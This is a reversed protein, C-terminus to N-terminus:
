EACTSRGDGDACFLGLETLAADGVTLRCVEKRPVPIAVAFFAVTEGGTDAGVVGPTPVENDFGRCDTGDDLSLAPAVANVGVNKPVPVLGLVGTAEAKGEIAGDCGIGAWEVAVGLGCLGM